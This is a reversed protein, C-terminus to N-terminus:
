GMVYKTEFYLSGSEDQWILGYSPTKGLPRPFSISGPNMLAVGKRKELLPQHTHGFLVVNARARLGEQFLLDRSKGPNHHHGHVMLIRHEGLTLLKREPLASMGDMNGKVMTIPCDAIKRIEEEGGESDGLHILHEVDTEVALVKELYGHYGHTDSVVLLKM